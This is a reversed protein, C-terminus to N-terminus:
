NTGPIKTFSWEFKLLFYRSVKAYHEETIISSNIMRNFGRNQDLIDTAVLSIMGSKNKLVKRGISGNWQIISTNGPFASSEKRIDFQVDSRLEIKGPLMVFGSTFGGYTFYNNNITKNISSKSFNYGIEPRFEISWKDPADYGGSIGLKANGYNSINKAGDIFNISRGGNGNLNLGYYMKKPGGGKNWNGYVNWNHVGNTNVPSYIQKIGVTDGYSNLVTQFRTSNVIANETINYSLSIWMGRQALVKYQNFFMSFSHNFGVGLNQNGQFENLPDSNDKVPQLQNITPQRTTGRYNFNVSMQPKFTYGVQVQPTFKLFNYSTDVKTDRNALNLKVNSLGSGFALKVKKDMFRFIASGSHSFAEMDFNNSYVPDLTEYKGNSSKNFTNRDSLSNNRNHAYDLVLNWKVSLPENFTLKGGLTKSNGTFVKGQDVIGTSDIFGDKYFNATTTITGHQDDDVVGFKLVAILLRNKKNFQQRYTLQNDNQLKTIHNSRDQVSNNTLERSFNRYETLTNTYQDTTKRLGNVTLKLSALSDIKWEYKLNLAHQENLGTGNTKVNRYDTSYKRLYQTATNGENETFLRNYRYSGNVSQKDANWKNSYLAGGTYSHPIGRLSWDNFGDDSGYSFYYGGIEDYEFDNEMGLKQKDDWNLSGTNVDSKTGYLSLKKRGVFKNYLGKADVVDKFNSGATLKGFGGKKKDEKLKINLTKGESGSSIGTLNQQESKTDFLQVKDVIKASLNQTAMTPDDGFFEEGDVLVKEVKKGQATIEGKANVQFGPLKKLLDEVTAGEKVAFSDATFETTDGKIRIAAGGRIVIEKMLVLTPTLPLIGLDRDGTVTIDDVYDAFKPYTVMLMYKGTDLKPLEFKGRADTRVFGALTSDKSSILAVVANALNRNESTDRVSGTIKAQQALAINGSVLMTFLFVLLKM